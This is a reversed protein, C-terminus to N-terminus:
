RHPVLPDAHHVGEVVPLEPCSMRSRSCAGLHSVQSCYPQFLVLVCYIPIHTSSYECISCTNSSSGLSIFAPPAVISAAPCKKSVAAWLAVTNLLPLLRNSVLMTHHSSHPLPVGHKCSSVSTVNRHVRTSLDDSFSLLLLIGYELYVLPVNHEQDGEEFCVAEMNRLKPHIGDYYSPCYPCHVTVHPMFITIATTIVRPFRTASTPLRAPVVLVQYWSVPVNKKFLFADLPIHHTSSLPL